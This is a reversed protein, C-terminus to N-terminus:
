SQKENIKELDKISKLKSYEIEFRSQDYTFNNNETGAPILKSKKFFEEKSLFGCVWVKSWDNKVRSFIYLDVDRAKQEEYLTAVYYEKPKSNCGQAKSDLTVGNYKFDVSDEDSYEVGCLRKIAVEALYGTMRQKSKNIRHTGINGYKKEFSANRKKAEDLMEGTIAVEQIMVYGIKTDIDFKQEFDQLSDSIKKNPESYDLLLM